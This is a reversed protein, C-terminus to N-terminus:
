ASRSRKGHGTGGTLSYICGRRLVGDIEYQPPTFGAIFAKANVLSPAPKAHGSGGPKSGNASASGSAQHQKRAEERARQADERSVPM